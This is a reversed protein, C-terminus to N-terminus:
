VTDKPKYIAGFDPHASWTTVVRKLLAYVIRM